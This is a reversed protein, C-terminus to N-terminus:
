TLDLKAQRRSWGSQPNLIDSISSVARVGNRKCYSAWDAFETWQHIFLFDLDFAQAVEHDLRSDGLSLAPRQIQGTKLLDAVISHKDKPSGYIGGNFYLVLGRQEFVERLEAQDGGSVILWRTHPLAQRLKMLGPAVECLLLEAKLQVAFEALLSHLFGSRAGVIVDPAHTPLISDVFYEFKAYRSMGGNQKHFSVLASSAAEGFPLTVSRFAKTKITNSNLVVGDCDFLLTAPANMCSLGEVL